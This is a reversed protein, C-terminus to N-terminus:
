STNCNKQENTTNKGKQKGNEWKETETKQRIENTETAHSERKGSSM